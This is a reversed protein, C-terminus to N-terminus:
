GGLRKFQGKKMSVVAGAIASGGILVWGWGPISSFFGTPIMGAQVVPKATTTSTTVVPTTPKPTLEDLSGIDRAAPTPAPTSSPFVANILSALVGKDATTTNLAKSWTDPGVIGNATLQYAKQWAITAAKTIAGFDGDAKIKAGAKILINQWQVVLAGKSGTQITAPVKAGDTHTVTEPMNTYVTDTDSMKETTMVDWGQAKLDPAGIAANIADRRRRAEDYSDGDFGKAYWSLNTYWSKWTDLLPTAAARNASTLKARVNTLYVNIADIDEAQSM